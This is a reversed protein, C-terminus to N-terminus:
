LGIRRTGLYITGIVNRDDLSYIYGIRQTGFGLITKLTACIAVRKRDPSITSALIECKGKGLLDIAAKSIDGWLEAQDKTRRIGDLLETLPILKPNNVGSAYQFHILLKTLECIRLDDPHYTNGSWLCKRAEIPMCYNGQASKYGADELLKAGSISSQVIYKKLATKGTIACKDLESPMVRKQSVACIELVGPAVLKGTEDCRESEMVAINKHTFACEVFESKHGKKGSVSSISEQDIRYKKNSINSTALEDILVQTNTFECLSFYQLEAVKRSIPSIKLLNKDLLKGTIDSLRAEDSLIRKGSESCVVTFEPLAMRNSSQSKILLDGIVHKGSIECKFICDIPVKAGSVECTAFDPSNIIEDKSPNISIISNYLQEGGIKYTSKILIIRSVDGQLGVLTMEVRPTFDDELKKKKREDDRASIVEQERRELYFRCFESIGGDSSAANALKEYDVGILKPDEIVDKVPQLGSGDFKSSHDSSICPVNILREYSDHAVTARAKVIAMGNFRRHVEAISTSHCNGGFSSVWTKAIESCIEIPNHDIDRVDHIGSAVVRDVLRMFVPTGPAYYASRKNSNDREDFRILETKTGEEVLYLRDGSKIIRAGLIEFAKLTFEEATLSKDDKPLIPPRPGVYEAGDMSGLMNNINEKEKNLENKANIISQEQLRVIENVDVGALSDIVLRRILEDFGVPDGDDDGAVGSAELLSEIDGIAESAMQLKEMLRGVIYEEFTGTLVINFIAVNKHKSALRQVRGIRQEVIMPNWPLDYNVLVNAVQLNIGESGAETSIIVHLKPPSEKFKSITEVNRKGSTGNILGVKIDRSELFTQIAAQTEIRGTFIVLRWEEPNDSMLQDILKRLGALKSSPPMNNVVKSVAAAMEGPVTGNRAMTNLQSELAEPSSTLAQLISIQALRNLKKIPEALVRLLLLEANTPQIRHMQVVRDPFYLNADGRRVRSMYGYVISRFEDKRDQNLKRANERTDAIFKRAFTGENGFPNKHGRAVTLLDVLSYIDWLRNQIPTATLMLVFRFRREELAKHFRKAVMPPNPTGYLNRLKHAEDLILMDFRDIPIRDLYSRASQYTTIVAGRNEPNAGILSRGVAIESPFNFKTLLEEQWQPGLLKPCVILVKSLRNRSILESIILGASITKGLGVDDALLTVPLRRCFTILNKVQHHYPELRSQWIYESKLDERNEIIIPDTIDWELGARYIEYEDPNRQKRLIKMRLNQLQM